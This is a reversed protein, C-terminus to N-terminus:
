DYKKGGMSKCYCRHYNHIHKHKHHHCHQCTPHFCSTLLRGYCCCSHHEVISLIMWRDFKFLMFYWILFFSDIVVPLLFCWVFYIYTLYLTCHRFMFYSILIFEYWVAIISYVLPVLGKLYYLIYISISGDLIAM